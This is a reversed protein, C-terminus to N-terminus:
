KSSKKEGADDDNDRDTRKDDADYRGGSDKSESPGQAAISIAGGKAEVGKEGSSEKKPSSKLLAKMTESRKGERAMVKYFSDYDTSAILCDIFTSIYPDDSEEQADRVEKYFEDLPIDLTNLYSELTNEYLKLYIQFLNYYRLDHEGSCMAPAGEFAEAHETFFNRFVDVLCRFFIFYVM